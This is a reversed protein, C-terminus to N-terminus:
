RLFLQAVVCRHDSVGPCGIEFRGFGLEPGAMIRDLRLFPRRAPYTYGLGWSAASFGDSYGSLERRLTASLGPLNTDGALVVPYRESRAMTAFAVVQKVRLEANKALDAEPDGALIGGTRIHRLIGRFGYVGFAGRPSIPHVSYLALKGLTTDVVYRMFRPTHPRDPMPIKEPETRELIPFRSALLFQTSGDVHAFRARLGEHLPGGWPSEQFLAVDPKVEDVAALLGEVGGYANAVNLSLLKLTPGPSASAPWPLVLGMLPFVVLMLAVLQTWLLKQHGLFWLAPVFVALPAAFLLRPLYLAGATVWWAEGLGALAVCLGVLTAPYAYAGVVVLRRFFVMLPRAKAHKM